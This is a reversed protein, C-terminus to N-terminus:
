CDRGSEADNRLINRIAAAASANPKVCIEQALTGGVVSVVATRADGVFASAADGEGAPEASLAVCTAIRLTL